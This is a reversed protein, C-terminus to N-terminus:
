SEDLMESDVAECQVASCQRVSFDFQYFVNLTLYLANYAM